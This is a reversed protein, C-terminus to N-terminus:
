FSAHVDNIGAIKVFVFIRLRELERCVRAFRKQLRQNGCFGRNSSWALWAGFCQRQLLAHVM